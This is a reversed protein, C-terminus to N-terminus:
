FDYSRSAGTFPVLLWGAAKTWAPYDTGAAPPNAPAPVTRQPPQTACGAAGLCIASAILFLRPNLLRTSDNARNVPGFSGASKM